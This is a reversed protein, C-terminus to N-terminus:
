YRREDVKQGGYCEQFVCIGCSSSFIASLNIKCSGGKSEWQQAVRALWPHLDAKSLHVSLKHMVRVLGGYCKYWEM